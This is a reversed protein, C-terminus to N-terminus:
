QSPKHSYVLRTLNNKESPQCEEEVISDITYLTQSKLTSLFKDNFEFVRFEKRAFIDDRIVDKSQLAPILKGDHGRKFFLEMKTPLIKIHESYVTNDLPGPKSKTFLDPSSEINIHKTDPLMISEKPISAAPV